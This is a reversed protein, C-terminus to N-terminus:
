FKLLFCVKYYTLLGLFAEGEAGSPAESYPKFEVDHGVSNQATQSWSDEGEGAGRKGCLGELQGGLLLSAEQRAKTNDEKKSAERRTEKLGKSM